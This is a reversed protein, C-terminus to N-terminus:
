LVTLGIWISCVGPFKGTRPCVYVYVINSMPQYFCQSIFSYSQYFEQTYDHKIDVFGPWVRDETQYFGLLKRPTQYHEAIDWWCFSDRFMKKIHYMYMNKSIRKCDSTKRNPGRYDCTPYHGSHISSQYTSLCRPGSEINLHWRVLIPFGVTSILRDYSRRIEM